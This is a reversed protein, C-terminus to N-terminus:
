PTATPCRYSTINFSIGVEAITYQDKQKSFGRQRGEIGIPTGVEFSRDQMIGAISKGGATSPFKDAGVYTTSVDDIYDTTTFRHTIEFSINIKDNLAYKVGFGIPFCLAMSGYEKRNKYFTQGETHLPRLYIKQNKYYAYPNYNFIGIGLTAYPTFSYDPDVPNFKFFNFDGQLALEFINTNFSLNRRLNYENSSYIDSYGLRAFHGSLRVASYNGFQKRIFGGIALKPRNIRGRNNLDGFYHAVGATIGFEGEQVYESMQSFGQVSFILTALLFFIIKKM